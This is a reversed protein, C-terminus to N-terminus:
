QTRDNVNGENNGSDDKISSNADVGTIEVVNHTHQRLQSAMNVCKTELFQRASEFQSRLSRNHIFRPRWGSRRCRLRWWRVASILQLASEQEAHGPATPGIVFCAFPHDIEARAIRGAWQPQLTSCAAEVMPAFIVTEPFQIDGSSGLRRMSHNGSFVVACWSITNGRLYASHRHVYKAFNRIRKLFIREKRKGKQREALTAM